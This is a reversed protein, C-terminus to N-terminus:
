VFAGEGKREGEREKQKAIREFVSTTSCTYRRM